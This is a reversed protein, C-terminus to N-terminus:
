GDMQCRLDSFPDVVNVQWLWRGNAVLAALRAGEARDLLRGLARVLCPRLTDGTAHEALVDVLFGIEADDGVRGLCIAASARDLDTSKSAVIARLQDVVTHDRLLGLALAAERRATPDASQAVMEHLIARDAPPAGLLGLAFAASAATPGGRNKPILDILESRAAQVNGLGCAVAFAMKEDLSKSRELAKALVEGTKVDPNRRLALGLAVAVYRSDISKARPLAAALTAGASPHGTRALGIAAMQRCTTVDETAFADRLFGVTQEDGPGVFGGLAQLATSRVYERGDHAARTLLELAKPGGIRPLAQVAGCASDGYLPVMASRWKLQEDIEAIASERGLVGVAYGMAGLVELSTWTNAGWGRIAKQRLEQLKPVSGTDGRMALAYACNAWFCAQRDEEGIGSAIAALLANRAEAAQAADGLPLEGLGLAASRLMRREAKGDKVIKALAPIDHVDGALGIAVAAESAVFVDRSALAKLLSEHARVRAAADEVRAAGAAVPTARYSAAVIAFRNAALWGDCGDWAGFRCILDDCSPNMDASDGGALAASVVCLSLVTAVAAGRM